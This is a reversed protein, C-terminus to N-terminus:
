TSSNMKISVCIAACHNWLCSKRHSIWNGTEILGLRRNKVSHLTVHWSGVRVLSHPLPLTSTHRPFYNSPPPSCIAKGLGWEKIAARETVYAEKWGSEEGPCLSQIPYLFSNRDVKFALGSRKLVRSRDKDNRRHKCRDGRPAEKNEQNAMTWYSSKGKRISNVKYQCM